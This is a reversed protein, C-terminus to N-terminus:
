IIEQYRSLKESMKHANRRQVDLKDKVHVVISKSIKSFSSSSSINEFLSRALRGSHSDLRRMSLFSRRRRHLMATSGAQIVFRSDTLGTKRNFRSTRFLGYCQKYASLRSIWIPEARKRDKTNLSSRLM